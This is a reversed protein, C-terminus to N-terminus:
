ETELEFDIISSAEQNQVVNDFNETETTVKIATKEPKVEKNISSFSYLAISVIFASILLVKKM